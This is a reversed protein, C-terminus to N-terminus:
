NSCRWVEAAKIQQYRRDTGLDIPPSLPRYIRDKWTIRMATVDGSWSRRRVKINHTIENQEQGAAYFERSGISRISAWTTFVETWNDDEQFQFDGVIDAEGVYRQFSVRRDLEGADDFAAM